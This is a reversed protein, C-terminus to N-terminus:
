FKPILKFECMGTMVERIIEQIYCAEGDVIIQGYPEAKIAEYEALTLPYEFTILEPKIYGIVNDITSNEALTAGSDSLYYYAAESIPSCVASTNGIGSTFKFDGKQINNVPKTM